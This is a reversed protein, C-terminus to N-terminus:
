TISLKTLAFKDWHANCYKSIRMVFDYDGIINFNDNFNGYELFNKESFYNM